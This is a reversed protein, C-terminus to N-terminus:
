RDVAEEPRCAINSTRGNSMRCEVNRFPHPGFCPRTEVQHIRARLDTMTNKIRHHQCGESVLNKRKTLAGTLFHPYIQKASYSDPCCALRIIRSRSVSYLLPLHKFFYFTGYVVLFLPKYEEISLM